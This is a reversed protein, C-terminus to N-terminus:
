QRWEFPTSGLPGGVHDRRYLCYVGKSPSTREETTVGSLNKVKEEPGSM